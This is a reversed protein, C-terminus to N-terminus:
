KSRKYAGRLALKGEVTANAKRILDIILEDGFQRRLNYLQAAQKPPLELTFEVTPEDEPHEDSM